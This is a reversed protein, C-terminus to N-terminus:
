ISTKVKIFNLLLFRKSPVCIYNCFIEEEKLFLFITIFPFDTHRSHLYLQM